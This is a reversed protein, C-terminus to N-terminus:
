RPVRVTRRVSPKTSADYRAELDFQLTYVGPKPKSLPLQRVTRKLSGCPARPTGWLTTQVAKGGRVIHEFLSKREVFGNISFTVRSNWRGTAPSMAFSLPVVDFVDEAILGTEDQATLRTSLRKKGATLRPASFDVSVDGQDDTQATPLAKGGLLVGLDTNPDFDTVTANGAQGPRYCDYDLKLAPSAAAPAAGALAALLLPALVLRRM